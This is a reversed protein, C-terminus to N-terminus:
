AAYLCAGQMFACTHKFRVGEEKIIFPDSEISRIHM